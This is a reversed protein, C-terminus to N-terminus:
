SSLIKRRRKNKPLFLSFILFFFNINIIKKNKHSYSINYKYSYADRLTSSFRGLIPLLLMVLKKKEAQLGFSEAHALLLGGYRAMGTFFQM